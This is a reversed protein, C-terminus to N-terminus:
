PDRLKCGPAAQRRDIPQLFKHLGATEHCVPDVSVFAEPASRGVHVLDQFADFGGIQRDLLRRLEFENDVESGGLSESQCDRRRQERPRLLDDLSPMLTNDIATATMRARRMTPAPSSANAWGAAAVARM